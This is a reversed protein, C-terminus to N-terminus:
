KGSLQERATAEWENTINESAAPKKVPVSFTKPQSDMYLEKTARRRVRQRENFCKRCMRTVTINEPIRAHGNLCHTRVQAPRSKGLNGNGIARRHALTLPRDKKRLSQLRRTAASVTHGFLSKQIKQRTASSRPGCTKPPNEGGDTLNRLCGTGLDIRGYYAILFKEAELADQESEHEQILIRGRDKPPKTIRGHAYYARDDKGKGAYYPSGDYRMWLYTYFSNDVHM